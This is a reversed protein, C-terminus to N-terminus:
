GKSIQTHYTTRIDLEDCQVEEAYAANSANAMHRVTDYEDASTVRRGM